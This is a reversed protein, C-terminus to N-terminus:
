FTSTEEDVDNNFIHDNDVNNNTISTGDDSEIETTDDNDGDNIKNEVSEMM